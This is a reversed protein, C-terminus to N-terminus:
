TVSFNRLITTDYTISSLLKTREKGKGEAGWEERPCYGRVYACCWKITSNKAGEVGGGGQQRFNHLRKSKPFRHPHATNHCKFCCSYCKFSM